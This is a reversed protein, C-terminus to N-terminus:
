AGYHSLIAERKADLSDALEAKRDKSFGKDDIFISGTRDYVGKRVDSAVKDLAQAARERMGPDASTLLRPFFVKLLIM